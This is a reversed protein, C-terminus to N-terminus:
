PPRSTQDPPRQAFLGTIALAQDSVVSRTSPWTWGRGQHASSRSVAEAFGGVATRPSPLTRVLRNWIGALGPGTMGDVEARTPEHQYGNGASM